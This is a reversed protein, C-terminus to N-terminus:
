YGFAETHISRAPFGLAKLDTKVQKMMATPGCIFVESQRNTETLISELRARNLRGSDSHGATSRTFIPIIRLETLKVALLDMEDGFVVHQETRNSWILTMPRTNGKDAMYRLMSLMPTIGIGGAIFILERGPPIFRHGFRGFPGQILAKDGPKLRNVTRTWDGCARITFQLSSGQTPSSSLTFPHPESSLRSSRFSIIAFQGPHYTFRKESLPRLTLRTSDMGSAEIMAVEYPRRRARMWGSRVWLWTICFVAAAAMVARGPIVNDTFSESVYLVHVLLLATILLGGIRHLRIWVHFAIGLRKRWQSVVLLLLIMAMLGVGVWEPWYRMELPILWKGESYLVLAPHALAMAAIVWAHIRHERILGPMSFVRDLFKLRGALPLQLLILVGAALGILKGTRLSTKAIGFKYWMSPSEFLFPISLAAVLLLTSLLIIAAAM